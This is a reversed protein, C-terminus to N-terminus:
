MVGRLARSAAGPLRSALLGADVLRAIAPDHDIVAVIPVGTVAEIDDLGLARSGENVVVVGDPVVPARAARRLGLFCPRTVLISTPAARAIAATVSLAPASAVLGCDVVVRRGDAALDSVFRAVVAPDVPPLLGDGAAGGVGLLSLNSLVEREMRFRASSSASPGAALLDVVGLADPAPEPIGLVAPQDGVLDVLLVPSHQAGTLALLASVVSVGSGGKVSWVAILM